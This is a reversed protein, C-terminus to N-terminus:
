FLLIAALIAPVIIDEKDNIDTVFLLLLGLLVLDEVDFKRATKTPAITKDISTGSSNQNPVSESDVSKKVINSEPSVNSKFAAPSFSDGFYQVPIDGETRKQVPRFSRSYM